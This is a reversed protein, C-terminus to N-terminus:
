SPRRTGVCDKSTVAHFLSTRNKDKATVDAVHANFDLTRDHQVGLFERTAKFPMQQKDIFLQPKWSSDASSGFFCALEKCHPHAQKKKELQCSQERCGPNKETAKGKKYSATRLLSKEYSHKIKRLNQPSQTSSCCFFYHPLCPDRCSEKNSCRTGASHQAM